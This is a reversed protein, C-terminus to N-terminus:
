GDAKTLARQLPPSQEAHPILSMREALTNEVAPSDGIARYVEEAATLSALALATNALCVSIRGVAALADALARDDEADLVARAYEIRAEEYSGDLHLIAAVRSSCSAARSREGVTLFLERAIRLDTLDASADRENAWGLVLSTMTEHFEFAGERGEGRAAARPASRLAHAVNLLGDAAAHDHDFLVRALGTAVTELRDRIEEPLPYRGLESRAALVAHAGRLSLMEDRRSRVRNPRAVDVAAEACVWENRVDENGALATRLTTRCYACGAAHVALAGDIDQEAVEVLLGLRLCSETRGPHQRPASRLNADIVSRVFTNVRENSGM